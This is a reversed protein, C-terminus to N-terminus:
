QQYFGTSSISTSLQKSKLGRDTISAFHVWQQQSDILTVAATWAREFHTSLILKHQQRLIECVCVPNLDSIVFVIVAFRHM